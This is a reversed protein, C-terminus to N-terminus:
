VVNRVDNRQRALRANLQSNAATPVADWAVANRLTTDYDIEGLHLGQFNVHFCARGPCLRAQCRAFECFRCPRMTKSGPETISARNPNAPDRETATDSEQYSFKTHGNVIKQRGFNDSCVAVQELDVGVRMRIEEPCDPTSATVKADHSSELK